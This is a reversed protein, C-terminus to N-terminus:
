FTSTTTTNTITIIINIKNEQINIHREPGLKSPLQRISKSIYETTKQKKGMSPRM